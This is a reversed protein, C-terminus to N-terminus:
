TCALDRCRCDLGRRIIIKPEAEAVAPDRGHPRRDAICVGAWPPSCARSGALVVPPPPFSSSRLGAFPPRLILPLLSAFAFRPFSARFNAARRSPSTSRLFQLPPAPLRPLFPALVDPRIPPHPSPADATGMVTSRLRSSEGRSRSSRDPPKPLRSHKRSLFEDHSVEELSTITQRCQPMRSVFTSTTPSNYDERTEEVFESVAILGPM